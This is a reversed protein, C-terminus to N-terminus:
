SVAVAAIVRGGADDLGLAAMAEPPVLLDEAEGAPRGVLTRVVRVRPAEDTIRAVLADTGAGEDLSGMNAQFWRSGRVTRIQDTEAELHPGGDFPDVRSCYSFGSRELLHRAGETAPGVRGIVAQAAMPLLEVYIPTDPFLQGLFRNDLRSLADAYAYALGTCKAGIADWLDSQLEGAKGRRLPPLLEALVRDRFWGRLGAIVVFRSFSLLRGLKQPHSRLRPHLVLGGIETPGRETSGLTLTTLVRSLKRGAADAGSIVASCERQDVSFYYHAREPTGHQAFISATGVVAGHPDELVFLLYREPRFVERSGEFGAASRALLERVM